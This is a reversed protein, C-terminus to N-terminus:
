SATNWGRCFIDFDCSRNKKREIKKKKKVLEKVLCFFIMLSLVCVCMCVCVYMYISFSSSCALALFFFGLM